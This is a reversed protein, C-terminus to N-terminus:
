SRPTPAWSAIWSLPASCLHSLPARLPTYACGRHRCVSLHGARHRCVSSQQGARHCCSVAAWSERQARVKLFLFSPVAEVAFQDLVDVAVDADAKAFLVAEHLSALTSVVTDMQGGARSAEEWTAHCFLVHLADPSSCLWRQLSAVTDVTEIPAM